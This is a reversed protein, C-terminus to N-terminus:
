RVTTTASSWRQLPYFAKQTIHEFFWSYGGGCTSLPIATGCSLLCKLSDGRVQTIAKVQELSIESAAVESAEEAALLDCSFHFPRFLQTDVPAGDTRPGGCMHALRLRTLACERALAHAAAALGDRLREKQSGSITTEDACDIALATSCLLLKGVPTLM